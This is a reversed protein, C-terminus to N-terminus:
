VHGRKVPLGALAAQAPFLNRRMLGGLLFMADVLREASRQHACAVALDTAGLGSYPLWDASLPNIRNLNRTTNM